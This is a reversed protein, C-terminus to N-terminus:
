MNGQDVRSCSELLKSLDYISSKYQAEEHFNSTFQYCVFDEGTGREYVAFSSFRKNCAANVGDFSKM